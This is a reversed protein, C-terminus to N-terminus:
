KKEELVECKNLKEGRINDLNILGNNKTNEPSINSKFYNINQAQDNGTGCTHHVM